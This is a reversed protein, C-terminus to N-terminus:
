SRWGSASAKPSRFSRNTPSWEAVPPMVPHPGPRRRQHHSYRRCAPSVAPRHHHRGAPASRSSPHRPSVPSRPSPRDSTPTTPRRSTNWRIACRPSVNSRTPSGSRPARRHDGHGSQQARRRRRGAGLGTRPRAARCPRPRRRSRRASDRFAGAIVALMVENVTGGFARKITKIDALDAHAASWRRHPGIGGQISSVSQPTMDTVSRGCDTSRRASRPPRGLPRRCWRALTEPGQRGASSCDVWRSPSSSSTPRSTPRFGRRGAGTPCPRPPSRAPHDDLRRGVRRRGHLPAGQVRTGM